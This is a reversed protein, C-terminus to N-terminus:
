AATDVVSTKYFAILSELRQIESGIDEAESDALAGGALQAQKRAILAEWSEVRTRDMMTM